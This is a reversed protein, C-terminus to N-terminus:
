EFDNLLDELMPEREFLRFYERLKDLNLTARNVRLLERIDVLDQIRRSDNVYAQLKLGILGEVSVVRLIGFPTVFDAAEELLQRAAPRHAYLFDVREDNRLYNAADASRHICRYGLRRLTSDIADGDSQRTLFDIDRTARVVKHPALALGGILAIPVNLENLANVIEELQTALRSM